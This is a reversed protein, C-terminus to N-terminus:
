THWNDPMVPTMEVAAVGGRPPLTLGVDSEQEEIHIPIGDLCNPMRKDEPLTGKDVKSEVYAILAYTEIYECPPMRSPVSVM